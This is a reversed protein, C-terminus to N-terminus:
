LAAARQPRQSCSSSLTPYRAVPFESMIPLIARREKYGFRLGTLMDRSMPGAAHLDRDCLELRSQRLKDGYRALNTSSRSTQKTTFGRM